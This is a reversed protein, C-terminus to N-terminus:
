TVTVAVVASTTGSGQDNEGHAQVEYNGAPLMDFTVEEGPPCTGMEVWVSAGVLRQYVRVITAGSSQTTTTISGEGGSVEITSPGPPHAVPNLLSTTPLYLDCKSDDGPFTFAVFLATKTMEIQLTKM